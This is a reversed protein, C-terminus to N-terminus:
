GEQKDAQAALENILAARRAHVEALDDAVVDAVTGGNALVFARASANRDAYLKLITGLKLATPKSDLFEWLRDHMYSDFTGHAIIAGSKVVGADVLARIATNLRDQEKSLGHPNFTHFRITDGINMGKASTATVTTYDFSKTRTAM